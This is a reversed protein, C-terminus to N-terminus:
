EGVGISHLVRMESLSARDRYEYLTLENSDLGAIHVILGTRGHGLDVVNLLNPLAQEFGYVGASTPHEAALIRPVPGPVIWAGLRYPVDRLGATRNRWEARVYYRLAGNALYLPQVGFALATNGGDRRKTTGQKM